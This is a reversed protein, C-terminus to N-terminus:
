QNMLFDAMPMNVLAAIIPVCSKPNCVYARISDHGGEDLCEVALEYNYVLSPVLSPVM